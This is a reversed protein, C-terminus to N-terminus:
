ANFHLWTKGKLAATVTPMLFFVCKEQLNSLSSLASMKQLLCFFILKLQM